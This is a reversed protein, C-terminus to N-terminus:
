NFKIAHKAEDNVYKVFSPINIIDDHKLLLLSCKIKNVKDYIKAKFLYINLIYMLIFVSTFIGFLLNLYTRKDEIINIFKDFISPSILYINFNAINFIYKKIYNSYIDLQLKEDIYGYVNNIDEINTSFTVYNMIDFIYDNLGLNNNELDKCFPTLNTYNYCKLDNLLQNYINLFNYNLKFNESNIVNVNSNLKFLNVDSNIPFSLNNKYELALKAKELDKDAKIYNIYNYELFSNLDKYKIWKNYFESDYNKNINSLFKNNLKIYSSSAIVSSNIYNFKKNLNIFFDIINLLEKYNSNLVVINIIFYVAEFSNVILTLLLFLVIKKTRINYTNDKSSDLKTRDYTSNNKNNYLDTNKDINAHNCYSNISSLSNYVIEKSGLSNNLCLIDNDKNNNKLLKINAKKYFQSINFLYSLVINNPIKYLINISKTLSMELKIYVVIFPTVLVLLSVVIYLYIYSLDIHNKVIDNILLNISESDNTIFYSMSNQINDLIISLNDQYTRYNNNTDIFYNNKDSLAIVDILDNYIINLTDVRSVYKIKDKATYIKIYYNNNTKNTNSVNFNKSEIDDISFIQLKDLDINRYIAIMNNLSYLYNNIYKNNLNANNNNNNNNNDLLTKNNVLLLSLCSFEEKVISITYIYNFSLKIMNNVHLSCIFYSIILSIKVVFAILIFLKTLLSIKFSLTSFKFKLSKLLKIKNIFLEKNFYEDDNLINKDYYSNNESSTSSLMLSLKNNGQRESIIKTYEYIRRSIETNTNEKNNLKFGKTKPNYIKFQINTNYKFISYDALFIEINQYIPDNDINKLINFNIKDKKNTNNINKNNNNKEINNNNNNNNNNTTINEIDSKNANINSLYFSKTLVNYRLVNVSCDMKIKKKHKNTKVLSTTSKSLQKAEVYNINHLKNYSKMTMEFIYGITNNSFCVKEVSIVFKNSNNRYFYNTINPHIQEKNDINTCNINNSFSSKILNANKSNTFCLVDFTNLNIDKISNEILTDIENKETKLKSMGPIIFDIKIYNIRKYDVIERDNISTNNNSCNKALNKYPRRTSLRVSEEQKYGSTLRDPKNNSVSKRNSLSNFNVRFKSNKYNVKNTKNISTPSMLCNNKSITYKNEYILDKPLLGILNTVQSSIYKVNLNKDTLIFCSNTKCVNSNPTRILGLINSNTKVGKLLTLTMNIPFIYGNKHLAVSYIRKLEISKNLTEFSSNYKNPLTFIDKSDNNLSNMIRYKDNIVSNSNDFKTKLHKNHSERFFNPMLDNISMQLSEEKTIGFVSCATSNLTLIDGIKNKIKNLSKQNININNNNNNNNDYSLVSEEGRAIIYANGEKIYNLINNRIYQNKSITNDKRKFNFDKYELINNNTVLSVFNNLLEIVRIDSDLNHKKEFESKLKNICNYIKIINKSLKTENAENTSIIEWFDNIIRTTNFVFNIYYDFDTQLNYLIEEKNEFLCNNTNSISEKTIVRYTILEMQFLFFEEKLSLKTLKIKNILYNSLITNKQYNIVFDIYYLKLQTTKPMLEIVSLFLENIYDLVLQREDMILAKQIKLTTQNNDIIFNENNNNNNNSLLNKNVYNNDNYNDNNKSLFSNSEEIKNILMKRKKILELFKIESFSNEIFMLSRALSYNEPKSDNEYLSLLYAIKKVISSATIKNNNLYKKLNYSNISIFLISIFTFGIIVSTFSGIFYDSNNNNNNTNSINPNIILIIILLLVSYLELGRFLFNIKYSLNNLFPRSTYIIIFSSFSFILNLLAMIWLRYDIYYDSFEFIFVLALKKLLFIKEYDSFLHRSKYSKSSISAYTQLDCTFYSYAIFFLIFVLSFFFYVYHDLTYCEVTDSVYISESVNLEDSYIYTNNYNNYSTKFIDTKCKLAQIFCSTIPIFLISQFILFIQLYYKVVKNLKKNLVLISKAYIFCIILSLLIVIYSITILQYVLYSTKITPALYHIDLLITKFWNLDKSWYKFYIGHFSFYLLQLCEIFAILIYLFKSNKSSEFLYNMLSFIEIKLKSRSTKLKMSLYYYLHKYNIKILIIIYLM